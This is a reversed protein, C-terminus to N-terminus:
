RTANFTVLITTEVERPEGDLLFPRYRWQRVADLAADQLPRPGTIVSLDEVHGDKGILAHLIVAGGASDRLGEPSQAPVKDEVLLSMAGAPIRVIGAPEQAASHVTADPGLRAVGAGSDQAHSVGAATALVAAVTWRLGAAQKM